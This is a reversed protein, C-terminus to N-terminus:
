ARRVLEIPLGDRPKSIPSQQIPMEYGEPVSFRYRLVLERLVLKIQMEAFHLGICMHAGGSFPVWSYPHRSKVEANSLFREPNFREPEEWYEQMYHTHIPYTVVMAGAPILHGQFEFSKLSFKPLTSLPPYLRLAEKMVAESLVMESLMDRSVAEASRPNCEDYIRDQWEPHKALLYMMTTLTSTTTDHAAMMLFIMHDVIEQDTYHAGSEDEARCLLAFLDQEGGSRKAPIQAHFYASMQERARIGRWLLSGPIPLPIKPMSAAVTTEFARNMRAADQGLNMGLFITAALDLTLQKFKPYALMLTRDHGPSWHEVSSQIQPLMKSLYQQMVPSKFGAQMLRRHYRHDDGDRLMLGNPFIRGIILDWAKKNSLIQGPNLLCLQHADAGFLHVMTMKGTKQMVVDGFQDRLAQGHELPNRYSQRLMRLARFFSTKIPTIPLVTDSM